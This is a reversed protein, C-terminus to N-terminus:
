HNTMILVNPHPNLLPPLQLEEIIYNEENTAYFIGFRDLKVNLLESPEGKM